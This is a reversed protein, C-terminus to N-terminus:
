SFLKSRISVRFPDLPCASLMEVSYVILVATRNYLKQYKVILM